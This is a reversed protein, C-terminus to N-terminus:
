KKKAELKEIRTELSRIKCFNDVIRRDMSNFNEAASNRRKLELERKERRADSVARLILTIVVGAGLGILYDFYNM